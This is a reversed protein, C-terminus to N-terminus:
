DVTEDACILCVGMALESVQVLERGCVNCRIFVPKQRDREDEACRSHARKGYGGDYYDEGFTIKLGCIGCEHLSKCNRLPFKFWDISKM